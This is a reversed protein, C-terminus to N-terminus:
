VACDWYVEIKKGGIQKLPLHRSVCVGKDYGGRNTIAVRVMTERESRSGGKQQARFTM